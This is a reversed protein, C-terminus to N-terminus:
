MLTCIFNNFLIKSKTVVTHVTSDGSIRTWTCIYTCKSEKGEGPEKTSKYIHVDAHLYVEEGM